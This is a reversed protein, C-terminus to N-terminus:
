QQASMEALRARLAATDAIEDFDFCIQELADLNNARELEDTISFGPFRKAILHHLVKSLAEKRGEERGEELGEERGEALIFQYVSSERLSQIPIM